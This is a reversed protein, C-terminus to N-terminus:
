KLWPIANIAFFRLSFDTQNCVVLVGDIVAVDTAQAQVVAIQLGSDADHVVIRRATLDGAFIRRAETDVAIGTAYHTTADTLPRLVGVRGALKSDAVGASTPATHTLV